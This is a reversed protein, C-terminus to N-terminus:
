HKWISLNLDLSKELENIETVYYKDYVSKRIAKTLKEKKTTKLNLNEIHEMIKRKRDKSFFFRGVFRKLSNDKHIFKQLLLVRPSSAPNSTIVTNYKHPPLEIFNSIENVVVNTNNIFEDFLVIKINEIGFYKEFAQIQNLYYGRSLYSYHMADKENLIREKELNLAKEFSFEELGRRQTMLYHSYARDVPNRLIFIIKVKGFTNYIRKASEKFYSYEPDIEGLFNCNNLEKFYKFYFNQGKLYLNENSFFHTEKKEPLCLDPHQNLIDHLTTTGAKQTGVCFFINKNM